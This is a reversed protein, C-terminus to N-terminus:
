YSFSPGPSSDSSGTPRAAQASMDRKALLFGAVFISGAFELLGILASGTASLLRGGVAIIQQSSRALLAGINTSAQLWTNYASEGIVPWDRVSTPPPPIEVSGDRLDNAIGFATSGLADGLLLSPVVVFVLGALTLTIAARTASEGLRRMLRLHTPGLAV